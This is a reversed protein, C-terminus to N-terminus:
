EDMGVDLVYADTFQIMMPNLLPNDGTRRSAMVQVLVLNHDFPGNRFLKLWITVLIWVNKNLSIQFITQLISVM